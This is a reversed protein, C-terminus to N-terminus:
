NQSLVQVRRGKGYYYRKKKQWIGKEGSNGKLAACSHHAGRLFSSLVVTRGWRNLLVLLQEEKILPKKLSDSSTRTGWAGEKKRRKKNVAGDTDFNSLSFTFITALTNKSQMLINTTSVILMHSGVIYGLSVIRNMEESTPKRAVTWGALTAKKIAKVNMHIYPCTTGIDPHIHRYNSLPHSSPLSSEFRLAIWVM